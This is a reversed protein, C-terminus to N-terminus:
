KAFLMHLGLLLCIVIVSLLNLASGILFIIFKARAEEGPKTWDGWNGAVKLGLWLGIFEPHGLFFSLIYLLGEIVGLWRTLEPYGPEFEEKKEEPAKNTSYKKLKGVLYYVVWYSCASSIILAILFNIIKFM